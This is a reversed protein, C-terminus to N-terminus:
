ADDTRGKMRSGGQELARSRCGTTGHRISGADAMTADPGTRTPIRCVLPWTIVYGCLVGPDVVPDSGAFHAEDAGVTRLETHLRTADAPSLTVVAGEHVEGM